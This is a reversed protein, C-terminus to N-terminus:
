NRPQEGVEVAAVLMREVLVLVRPFSCSCYGQAEVLRLGVKECAKWSVMVM